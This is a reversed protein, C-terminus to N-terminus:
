ELTWKSFPECTGIFAYFFNGTNFIIIVYESTVHSDGLTGLHKDAIGQTSSKGLFSKYSQEQLSAIQPSPEDERQFTPCWGECNNGEICLACIWM